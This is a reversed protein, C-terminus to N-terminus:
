TVWCANIHAPLHFLCSSPSSSDFPSCSLDCLFYLPTLARSQHSFMRVYASLVGLTRCVCVTCVIYSKMYIIFTPTLESMPKIGCYICLAIGDGHGIGEEEGGGGGCVCRLRLEGVTCTGVHLQSLMLDKLFVCVVVKGNDQVNKGAPIRLNRGNDACWGMYHMSTARVGLWFDWNSTWGEYHVLLRKTEADVDVISCLYTSTQVNPDDVEVAMGSLFGCISVGVNRLEPRPASSAGLPRHAPAKRQEENFLYDPAATFGRENIYSQWNTFTQNTPTKLTRGVSACWGPPHLISNTSSTWFDWQSGWGEYHLRIESMDAKVELVSCIYTLTPSDPDDVELAM